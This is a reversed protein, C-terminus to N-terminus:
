PKRCLLPNTDCPSPPLRRTVLPIGNDRCTKELGARKPAALLRYYILAIPKNKTTCAARGCSMRDDPSLEKAKRAHCLALTSDWDSRASATAITPVAADPVVVVVPSADVAVQPAADPVVAPAADSLHADNAVVPTVSRGTMAVGMVLAIVVVGLAVAGLALGRSRRPVIKSTQTAGPTATRSISTLATTTPSDPPEVVPAPGSREVRRRAIPPEMRSQPDVDTVTEGPGRLDVTRTAAAKTHADRTETTRTSPERERPEFSADDDSLDQSRTPIEITKAALLQAEIDNRAPTDLTPFALSGSIAVPSTSALANQQDGVGDIKIAESTITIARSDGEGHELVIWPEPREGYLDRMFRGMTSVSMVYRQSEAIAEIAEIMAAATQYRRDPDKEMAGLVLADIEPPLDPVISSPKPVDEQVIAIMTAFDTDRRYLRRTTLMEHLVIGLSFIDSRRDVRKGECQEPSLYSIKGKITGSRSEVIREAAKAVGFDLLKVSGDYAIMLNSPTVDRHVIGLPKGAPNTREHAHHLALLTSSAIHLALHVPLKRRLGALRQLLHRADEGHVYEMTFFYAGALKGIDHVQAINPHHLQAALRAEDLFMSAFHPDNSREALVRKLVYHREFGAETTVRTLYIDAM